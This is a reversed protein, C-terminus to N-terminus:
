SEAMARMAEETAKVYARAAGLARRRAASRAALANPQDLSPLEITDVVGFDGEAETSARLLIADRRLWLSVQVTSEANRATMWYREM